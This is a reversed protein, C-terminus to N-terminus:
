QPAGPVPPPASMAESKPDSMPMPERELPVDAALGLAARIRAEHAAEIKQRQEATVRGRDPISESPGLGLVRRMEAERAARVAM